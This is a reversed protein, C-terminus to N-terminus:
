TSRPHHHHHHHHHHPHRISVAPYPAGALGRRTELFAGLARVLKGLLPSSRRHEEQTFMKQAATLRREQPLKPIRASDRITMHDAVWADALAETMAGPLKAWTRSWTPPCWDLCRGAEQTFPRVVLAERRQLSAARFADRGLAEAREHLSSLAAQDQTRRHLLSAREFGEDLRVQRLLPDDLEEQAQQRAVARDWPQRSMRCFKRKRRIRLELQAARPNDAARGRQKGM